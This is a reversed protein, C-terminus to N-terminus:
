TVSRRSRLKSPVPIQEQCLKLSSIERARCLAIIQNIGREHRHPSTWLDHNFRFNNAQCPCAGESPQYADKWAEIQRQYAPMSKLRDRYSSGPKKNSSNDSQARCRLSCYPLGNGKASRGNLLRSSASTDIFLISSRYGCRHLQAGLQM